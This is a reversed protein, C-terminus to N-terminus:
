MFKPCGLVMYMVRYPINVEVSGFMPIVLHMKGNHFYFEYRSGSEMYWVAKFM